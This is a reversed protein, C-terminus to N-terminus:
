TQETPRSLLGETNLRQQWESLWGPLAAAPMPRAIFYGQAVDCGMKRLWDWDTRDEVGEAVTEMDLQSAMDTSAMFIAQATPNASAGHVFRKDIKLQDFPLDSLQALSSYGTGFDDVALEIRKLHLRSLTDLM